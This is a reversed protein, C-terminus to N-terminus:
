IIPLLVFADPKNIKKDHAAYYEATQWNGLRNGIITLFADSNEIAEYLAPQWNYGFRLNSQDLFIESNPLATEIAQQLAVAVGRDSSHYSIFIRMRSSVVPASMRPIRVRRDPGCLLHNRCRM